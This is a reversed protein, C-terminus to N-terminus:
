TVVLRIYCYDDDDDDDGDGGGLLIRSYEEKKDFFLLIVEMGDIGYIRESIRTGSSVVGSKTRDIGEGFARDFEIIMIMILIMIVREDKRQITRV